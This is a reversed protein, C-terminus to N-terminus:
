KNAAKTFKIFDKDTNIYEELAKEILFSFDDNNNKTTENWDLYTEALFKIDDRLKIGKLTEYKHNPKILKPM